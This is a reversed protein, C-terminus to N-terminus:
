KSRGFANEIAGEICKAAYATFSGVPNEAFNKVANMLGLNGEQILDLMSLGQGAHKEAINVVLMLQSEILRRAANEQAGNWDGGNGLELFLKATEEETLSEVNRAERLYMAVPDNLDHSEM